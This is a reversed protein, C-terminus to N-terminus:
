WGRRRLEAKAKADGEAAARRLVGKLRADHGPAFHRAVMKKCGCECPHMEVVKAKRPAKSKAGAKAKGPKQAKRTGKAMEKAVERLASTIDPVEDM